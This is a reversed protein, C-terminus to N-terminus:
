FTSNRYFTALTENMIAFITTGHEKAARECDDFEPSIQVDEEGLSGIKVRIQGFRTAITEFRRHLEHRLVSKERVGFAGSHRLIAELVAQRSASDVLASLQVAPRQKKMCIPTFWVDRAGAEFIANMAFSLKEGPVDDINCSFEHLTQSLTRTEPTDAADPTECLFVRLVNPRSRMERHGFSHFTTTIEASSPLAVKPWVAFLAAATPTLMECPENEDSIPLRFRKLLEATAPAPVPYVGHACRVTGSGTPLPSLAIGDLGLLTYGLCAGVIDVLSDVAGVEHFHVDEAAVGHIKGEAEALAEFVRISLTKAEEPLQSNQIM